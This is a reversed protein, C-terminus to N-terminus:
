RQDKKSTNPNVPLYKEIKELLQSKTFPKALYDNCGLAIAKQEMGDNTLATIAVIPTNFGKSRLMETVELGDLIPMKIDLLLLHIPTKKNFYDMVEQGNKAVLLKVDTNKFITELFTKNDNEDEAILITPSFLLTDAKQSQHKVAENEEKQLPLTVKVETGKEHKSEVRISGNMLDTYAKVIALGLGNGRFVRRQNTEIKRFPEFIYEMQEPEIGIGSDKVSMQLSQHVAHVKFDVGGNETFKFANDLLKELIDLLKHKDANVVFDAEVFNSMFTFQLKKEQARLAFKKELLLIEASLNFKSLYLREQQAQIKAMNVTDNIINTLQQSNQAILQSFNKTEEPEFGNTVMMDTLGVICNLPTRVEHSLNNLFSTKLRNSEEAQKKAELLHILSRQRQIVSSIQGSVFEMLEVTALDYANENDFSQVVIAGIIKENAILPVGLWIKAPVGLRKIKGSAELAEIQKNNLLLSTKQQVVIGTLSGEAKWFPINEKSDEDNFASLSQKAEDYFAIFMNATDILQSLEKKITEVLPTLDNTLSVANTINFLMKQVMKANHQNTIDSGIIVAGEVEGNQDFTPSLHLNIWYNKGTVSKVMVEEYVSQGKLASRFKNMLPEGQYFTDAHDMVNEPLIDEGFLEKCLALAKQNYLLVKGEVDCFAFLNFGNEFIAKLQANTKRILLRDDKQQSLDIDICFLEKKKGPITTVTLQSLVPVLTGSKSKLLLEQPRESAADDIAKEFFLRSKEIESEPIMLDFISKGIAEAKTYGYLQTSAHNWYQIKGEKSFGYMAVHPTQDLLNILREDSAKLAEEAEKQATIDRGVGIIEFVEGKENRIGTNSWSIWKIGDPTKLRHEIVIHHPPEYLKKTKEQVDEQDEDYIWDQYNTTYVHEENTSFFKCFSPSVYTINGATDIKTVFDNQNQVLLRFKEESAKLSKTIISIRWRLVLIFATLILFFFLGALLYPWAKHLFTSYEYVEFWKNYLRDYEGNQKLHFMTLNIAQLLQENGKSVAIAYPIPNSFSHRIEINKLHLQNIFYAGQFNSVLAADYKGDNIWQLAERPNTALIIEDTLQNKLLYDHMMDSRQVVIKKNRLDDEGSINSNKHVFIGYSMMSHPLGFSVKEAREKSVMQGMVVDLQGREVKNRIEAWPSLEISYRFNLVESIKQFLEVNFGSPQGKEDLFEFPPFDHDGGILLIRDTPFAKTVLTDNEALSNPTRFFLVSLLLLYKIKAQM